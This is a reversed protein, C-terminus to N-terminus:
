VQAVAFMHPYENHLRHWVTQMLAETINNIEQKRKAIYQEFVHASDLEPTLRLLELIIDACTAETETWVKEPSYITSDRMYKRITRSFKARAVREFHQRQKFSKSKTQRQFVSMAPFDDLALGDPHTARSLAVFAVGPRGAAEGLKVVLLELTMGQAKWPTLAWALTLAYQTRTVGSENDEKADRSFSLCRIDVSQIRACM